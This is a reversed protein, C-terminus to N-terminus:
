KLTKGSVFAYGRVTLDESTVVRGQQTEGLGMKWRILDSFTHKVKERLREYEGSIEYVDANEKKEWMTISFFEDPVNVNETLYAHLCGPTKRFAPIIETRYLREFEERHEPLVKLSVIRLYMNPSSLPASEDSEAEVTHADVLPEREVPRYELQFDNTLQVKWETADAFLPRAIDMLRQFTGSKVYDDAQKRSTWLTMSICEGPQRVNHVLCAYLCGDVNQLTPIVHDEYMRKFDAFANEKIRAHAMRMFM